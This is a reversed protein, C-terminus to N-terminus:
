VAPETVMFGASALSYKEAMQLPEGSFPEVKSLFPRKGSTSQTAAAASAGPPASSLPAACWRQVVCLVVWRGKIGWCQERKAQAWNKAEAM